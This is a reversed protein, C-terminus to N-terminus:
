KLLARIGDMLVREVQPATNSSSPQTEYGGQAYAIETGIYGPGCDGYAAMCVVANPKLQQAALQYEVFLEGPMHVVYANGLKLCSLQVPEGKQMRLVFSLKGAATLREAEPAKTDELTARLKEADLHAAVPLRVPQVRWECDAAALPTKKTALWARQMADAMRNTLTVRMEASGDNYKGAAVNGAGGTFHVLTLGDRSQEHKARALGVFESTVDGKGFHSQPHTAYFSLSVLPRDEHFFTLMKLLPDITGEPAALSEEVRAASHEYGQRKAEEVLRSLIPEPIRYSSARAIAVKGNPGLIRRNSAVKEVKAEGVGLHTVPQSKKLSAKAAEAADAVAKRVFLVDFRKGALGQQAALEEASFDCRVGDHQHLVHVTVRDVTTEVARAFNERWVDHGGNAISIWDVACIVIPKGVGQLVIGRASLPDEIKRALAYAVPTGLPPTADAQFVSIRLQGTSTPEAAIGVSLMMTSAIGALLAWATHLNQLM